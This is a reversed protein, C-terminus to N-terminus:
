GCGLSGKDRRGGFVEEVRVVKEVMVVVEQKVEVVEEETMTLCLFDHVGSCIHHCSICIFDM